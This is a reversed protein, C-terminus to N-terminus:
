EDLVSELMADRRGLLAVYAYVEALILVRDGAVDAVGEMGFRFGVFATAAYSQFLHAFAEFQEIGIAIFPCLSYAVVSTFVLGCESYLYCIIFLLSCLIISLSYRYRRKESKVKRKERKVEIPPIETKPKASDAETRCLFCAKKASM